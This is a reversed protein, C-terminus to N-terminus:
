PNPTDPPAARAAASVHPNALDRVRQRRRMEDEHAKEVGDHNSLDAWIEAVSRDEVPAPAAAVPDPAPPEVPRPAPAVEVVPPPLAARAAPPAARDALWVAWLACAAVAAGGLAVWALPRAGGLALRARLAARVSPHPAPAPAGLAAASLRVAEAVAERADQDSALRAEFAAREAPALDDAAYRLATAQLTPDPM